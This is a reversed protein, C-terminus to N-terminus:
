RNLREKFQALESHHLLYVGTTNALQKASQTYSANSVVAAISAGCFQKGAIVEQVAKNGVPSAYKKCQFVAKNGDYEAIIDIGQDGSAQTVRAQWGNAKLLDACYHEFDVASLSGISIDDVRRNSKEASSYRDVEQIIMNQIDFYTPLQCWRKYAGSGLENKFQELFKADRNLKKQQELLNKLAEDKKLVNEIFYNVAGIWKKDNYNGYDDYSVTHKKKLSLTLLHKKIERDLYCSLYALMKNIEKKRSTKSLKGKLWYCFVLIIIATIILRFLQIKLLVLVFFWLFNVAVSLLALLFLWWVLSPKKRCKPLKYILLVSILVSIVTSFGDNHVFPTTLNGSYFKDTIQTIVPKNGGSLKDLMGRAKKSGAQTAKTFWENAKTQDKPLGGIGELYRYGIAYMADANGQGAM